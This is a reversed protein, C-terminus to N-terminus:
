LGPFTSGVQVVMRTDMLSQQGSFVSTNHTTRDILRLCHNNYDAVVVHKESIQTFGSIYNFRAEAGVGERYGEQTPSGAIPHTTTGDSTMLAHKDTYVLYGPRYRDFEMHYVYRLTSIFDTLSSKVIRCYDIFM